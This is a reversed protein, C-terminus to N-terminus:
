DFDDDFDEIMDERIDMYDEYPNEINPTKSTNCPQSESCVMTQCAQGDVCVTSIAVSSQNDSLQAFIRLDSIHNADLILAFAALFTVIAFVRKPVEM